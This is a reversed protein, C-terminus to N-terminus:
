FNYGLSVYGKIEKFYKNNSDKGHMLGIRLPGIVSKYGAGIGFGSLLSFGNDRDTKQVAFINAMFNLHLNEIIELDIEAGLGALKRVAIENPHFGIMPISRNNTSSLGGLLFFNNQKSLSDSESIYLADGSVSFTTKNNISLYYRFNGYITYFREFSFGGGYNEKFATKASDTRLNVSLLKSTGAYLNLVMGKNPFHKIDLSNVKYEYAATLYKHSLKKLHIDSVYDPILNMMDLSASISMMHNLSLRRDLTLGNYLNRSILGGPEGMLEMMPLLTNDAYIDASLGYKQNRDIFQLYDFKFRYFQGIFSNFDIVSRRTLLNKVSMGIIIGSKLSEDYHISGYLIARPKEICDIALILSDNRNVFRYKIKEFWAKGYLLEIKENMIYKDVKEGPEIELVGLIQNDSYIKNGNIEIKDFSYYLKDLINEIPKQPSINNLSDALRRFHEKFPLAASYGRQIISDVDEFKSRSFGTLDPEILLNVLKRQEAYDYLGTFFGLQMMIEPVSQLEDETYLHRGTYSGIIIDAGLERVESAPFNRLMGGDILLASDIKLPTFISPVTMSARMADPLYGSKLEVKKCTVLNTALCMFPIPLKLFDNIDAAPWAYFSFINEIQQGNILGSPLRVKKLTMPLSIVSNYFHYKEPYIVKNEPIKNSFVLDWNMIKLLKELSDAKYGISYMGGVISGMSVGTIYDPILGAEEMVKLVGVHAMGAAGGGSLVLGVHPRKGSGQALISSLPQFLLLFFVSYLLVLIKSRRTASTLRFKM